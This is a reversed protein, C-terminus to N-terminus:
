CTVTGTVTGTGSTLFNRNRRNRNRNWLVAWRGHPRPGGEQEGEVSLTLTDWTSSLFLLNNRTVVWRESNVKIISFSCRQIEVKKPWFPVRLARQWKLAWFLRSKWPGVRVFARTISIAQRLIMVDRAMLVVPVNIILFWYIPCPLSYPIRLMFRCGMQFAWVDHVTTM